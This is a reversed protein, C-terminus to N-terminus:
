DVDRVLESLLGILRRIEDIGQTQPASRLKRKLEINEHLLGVNVRGREECHRIMKELMVRCSAPGADLAEKALEIDREISVDRMM